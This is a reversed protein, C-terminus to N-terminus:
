ADGVIRVVRGTGGCTECAAGDRRGEGHCDPCIQEGTQPSDPRAEDGPHRSPRGMEARSESEGRRGHEEARGEPRGEPERAEKDRRGIRERGNTGM